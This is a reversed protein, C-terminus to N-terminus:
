QLLESQVIGTLWPYKILSDKANRSRKKTLSLLTHWCSHNREKGQVMRREGADIDEPGLSASGGAGRISGAM